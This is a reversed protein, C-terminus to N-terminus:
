YQNQITKKNKVGGEYYPALNGAWTVGFKLETNRHASGQGYISSECTMWQEARESSCRQFTM